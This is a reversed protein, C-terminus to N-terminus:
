EQIVYVTSFNFQRWLRARSITLVESGIYQCGAMGAAPPWGILADWLATRIDDLAENADFGREDETNSIAVIVGFVEEVVQTIPGSTQSDSADDAVPVVFAHPVALSETEAVQAFLAAGGVRNSLAAVQSRLQTIVPELKM